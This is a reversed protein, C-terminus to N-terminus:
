KEINFFNRSNETTIKALADTSMNLVEAGVEVIHKVNDPVNRKGRNPPPTLYPSDTEFFVRDVPMKSFVERVKRSKPFALVGTFSLYLGFDLLTRAQEYNGSFCHVVGSYDLPVSSLVDFADNFAERIHIVSPLKLEAAMELQSGFLKKQKDRPSFDYHYDLGIEGVAVTKETSWENFQELLKSIEADKADHPHWGVTTYVRAVEMSLKKSVAWTKPNTGVDIIYDLGNDLAKIAIEVRDDNFAEDSLHAHTDCFINM